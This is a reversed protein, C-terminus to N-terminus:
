LLKVVNKKVLNLTFNCGYLNELLKDYFDTFNTLKSAFIVRVNKQILYFKQFLLECIYHRIFYHKTMMQLM